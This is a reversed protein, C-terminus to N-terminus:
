PPRGAIISNPHSPHPLRNRTGSSYAPRDALHLAQPPATTTGSAAGATISLGVASSRTVDSTCAGAGGGGGGDTATASSDVDAGAPAVAVAIASNVGGGATSLEGRRGIRVRRRM